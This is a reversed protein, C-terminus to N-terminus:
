NSGLLGMSIRRIQGKLSADFVQSGVKIVVGGLLSADTTIELEVNSAGTLSKVKDAIADEQSRSISTACTVKALVINKLERQLTIFREFIAELFVIRRRDVLLFLFNLFYTDVENGCISKLVDKKEEAGLLPNMVFSSFEESANFASLFSRSYDAFDDVKNTDKALAMLAVAYPEVLQASMASGKM